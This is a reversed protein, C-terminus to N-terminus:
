PWGICYTHYCKWPTRNYHCHRRYILSEENLKSLLFVMEDFDALLKGLRARIKIYSTVFVCSDPVHNGTPQPLTWIRIIDIPRPLGM